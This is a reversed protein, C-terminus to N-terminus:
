RAILSAIWKTVASDNGIDGTFVREPVVPQNAGRPRGKYYKMPMDMAGIGSPTVFRRTELYVTDAGTEQGVHVAGFRRWLDVADLCASMCMADTLVFVQKIPPEYVFRPLGSQPERTPDPEIVWRDQGKELAEEIGRITNLFWARSDESLGGNADRQRFTQKISSLNNRSARWVITMPAEPYHTYVSEGWILKGIEHAWQGSGGGNGRLDFVLAPAKRILETKSSLEEILARLQKGPDSEPDGNFTPISVWFTGDDLERLGIKGPDGFSFVDMRNYFNDGAARWDLTVFQAGKGTEFTCETIPEAYPDGVDVFVLGSLIRRQSALQWRGFRSGIRAKGTEYASKGDCSVVRAGEPVKSWDETHTVKFSHKTDEKAVFGPWKVDLDPTNGFVGFNMHADNFSATYRQMAYFYDAFSKAAKARDLARALQADNKASFEQDEPNVMGPHSTSIEEHLAIADNRLTEGWDRQASPKAQPASVALVAAATLAVWNAM